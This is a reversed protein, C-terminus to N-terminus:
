HRRNTRRKQLVQNALSCTAPPLRTDNRRYKAVTPPIRTEDGGRRKRRSPAVRLRQGRAMSSRRHRSVVSEKQRTDDNCYRQSAGPRYSSGRVTVNVVEIPTYWEICVSARKAHPHGKSRGFGGRVTEPDRQQKNAITQAM